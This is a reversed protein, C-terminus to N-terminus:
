RVTTRVVGVLIGRIQIRDKSYTRPKLRRNAPTLTIQNGAASYKKLTTEDEDIIAVVTQGNRASTAHRIVALDGNNIGDLIMSDGKVALMFHDRPDFQEALDFTSVHETADIPTGAAIHGLVRFPMTRHGAQGLLLNEDTDLAEALRRVTDEGCREKGTEINSLSSFHIGVEDALDRLTIGRAQRLERITAGVANKM